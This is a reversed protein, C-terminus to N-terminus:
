FTWIVTLAWPNAALGPIYRRQIDDQVWHYSLTAQVPGVSRTLSSSGYVYDSDPLDVGTFYGAGIQFSLEQPLPQRATLEINLTETGPFAGIGQLRLVNEQSWAVSLMLRERWNLEGSWELYNYETNRPDNIFRYYTVGISGSIGGGLYQQWHTYLDLETAREGQRPEIPSAWAGTVWHEGVQLHVDLQAVAENRTQSVGRYVYDTTLGLSGDFDLSAACAPGATLLIIAPTMWSLNICSASSDEYCETCLM